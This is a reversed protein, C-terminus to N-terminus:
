VHTPNELPLSLQASSTEHICNHCWTVPHHHHQFEIPLTPDIERADHCTWSTGSANHRRVMRPGLNPFTGESGCACEWHHIICVQADDTWRTLGGCLAEILARETAVPDIDAAPKRGAPGKPGAKPKREALAEIAAWLDNPSQITPEPM